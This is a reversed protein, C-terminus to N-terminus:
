RKKFARFVEAVVLGVVAGAVGVSFLSWGYEATMIAGVLGAIVGVLFGEWSFKRDTM